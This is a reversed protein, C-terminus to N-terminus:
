GGEGHGGYRVPHTKYQLGAGDPVYGRKVYLRQAAGYDADLGVGIGVVGSREAVIREAADLLRTGIGHRRVAILVNFDEIEPISARLFPEYASNWRVTVYGCFRGDALALLVTRVGLAQESVYRHYQEEPKNWGQAQFAAVIGSVDSVALTRVEIRPNSMFSEEVTWRRQVGAVGIYFTAASTSELYVSNPYARL